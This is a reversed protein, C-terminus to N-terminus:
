PGCPWRPPRRRPDLYHAVLDAGTSRALATATGRGVREVIESARAIAETRTGTTTDLHRHNEVWRIRWHDRRETPPYARVTHEVELVERQDDAPEM